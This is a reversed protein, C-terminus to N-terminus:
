RERGVLRAAAPEHADGLLSGLKREFVKEEDGTLPRRAVEQNAVEQNAAAAPPAFTGHTLSSWQRPGAMVWSDLVPVALLEAAAGVQAFFERDAEGPTDVGDARVHFVLISSELNLALRLMERIAAGSENGSGSFLSRHDALGGARDIFAAGTVAADGRLHYFFLFRALAPPDAIVERALEMYALHRILDNAAHVYLEQDFFLPRLENVSIWMLDLLSEAHFRRTDAPDDLRLIRRLLESEDLEAHREVDSASPSM